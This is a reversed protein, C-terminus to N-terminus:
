RWLLRNGHARQAGERRAGALPPGPSSPSSVFWQATDVAVETPAICGPRLTTSVCGVFRHRLDHHAHAGDRVAAGVGAVGFSLMGSTQRRRRAWPANRDTPDAAVLAYALSPSRSRAVCSASTPAVVVAVSAAPGRPLAKIRGGKETRNGAKLDRPGSTSTGGEEEVGAPHSARFPDRVRPSPADSLRWPATARRVRTWSFLRWNRPLDQCPLPNMCPRRPFFAGVLAPRTGQTHARITSAAADRSMRGQATGGGRRLPPNPCFRPEPAQVKRPRSLGQGM